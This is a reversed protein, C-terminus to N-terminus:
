VFCQYRAGCDALRPLDGPSDVDNLLRGIPLSFFSLQKSHVPSIEGKMLQVPVWAFFETASKARSRKILERRVAFKDLSSNQQASFWHLRMIPLHSKQRSQLLVWASPVTVVLFLLTFGAISNLHPLIFVETGIGLFM